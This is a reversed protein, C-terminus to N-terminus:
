IGVVKRIEELRHTWTHEKAVYAAGAKARELDEQSPGNKLRTLLELAEAETSVVYCYEKFYRDIALSPNSVVIGGCALIEVLRRSFMTGSDEITNVNLSILYDKFVQATEEYPLIPKMKICDLEPYRYDSARRGSNRDHITLSLESKCVAHFIMNQWKRREEHM